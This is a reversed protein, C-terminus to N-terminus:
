VQEPRTFCDLKECTVVKEHADRPVVWKYFFLFELEREYRLVVVYQKALFASLLFTYRSGSFGQFELADKVVVMLFLCAFPGDM